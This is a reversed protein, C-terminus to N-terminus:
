RRTPLVILSETYAWIMQAYVSDKITNGVRRYVIANADSDMLLGLVLMLSIFSSKTSSRGGKLWYDTHKEDLIDEMVPYFTTAILDNIKVTSQM